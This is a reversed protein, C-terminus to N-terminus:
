PLFTVRPSLRFAETSRTPGVNPSLLRNRSVAFRPTADFEGSRSLFALSAFHTRLWAMLLHRTFDVIDVDVEEFVKQCQCRRLADFPVFSRELEHTCETCRPAFM